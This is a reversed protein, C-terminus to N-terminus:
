KWPIKFHFLVKGIVLEKHVLGHYSSESDGSQYYFYEPITIPAAPINKHEAYGEASIDVRGERNEPFFNSGPSAIIRHIWPNSSVGVVPEFVVVDNTRIPGSLPVVSSVVFSGRPITPSMSNTAIVYRPFAFHIVISSIIISLTLRPRHLGLAKKFSDNM